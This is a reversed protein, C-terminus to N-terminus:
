HYLYCLPAEDHHFVESVQVGVSLRDFRMMHSTSANIDYRPDPLNTSNLPIGSFNYLNDPSIYQWQSWLRDLQAHHLWFIPDNPTYANLKRDTCEKESIPAPCLGALDGGVLNHVHNHMQTLKYQLRFFDGSFGNIISEVYAPGLTRNHPKGGLDDWSNLSLQRRLRHPIPFALEFRPPLFAGSTVSCDGEPSCDGNGGLGYKPSPDFVPADILSLSDKTWDWYPTPGKYGCTERLSSDFLHLFWRHWPLFYPNEHASHEMAAHAFSFDDYLSHSGRLLEGQTTYSLRSHSISALCKVSSIWKEREDFSLTRWERRTTFKSCPRGASALVLFCLWILIQSQLHFYFARM